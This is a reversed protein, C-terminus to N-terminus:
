KFLYAEKTPRFFVFFWCLIFACTAAAAYGYQTVYCNKKKGWRTQGKGDNIDFIEKNPDVRGVQRDAVISQLLSATLSDNKPSDDSPISQAPVTRGTWSAFLICDPSLVYNVYSLTLCAATSFVFALALSIIQGRQYKSVRRFAALAITDDRVMGAASGAGSSASLSPRM